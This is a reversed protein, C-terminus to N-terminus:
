STAREEELYVLRAQDRRLAVIAGRILYATPDGGVAKMEAEIVTGPVIGLDMLRRRQLGRCAPSIRSVVGSVGLDLSALTRQEKKFQAPPVRVATLNASLNMTLGISKGEKVVIIKEPGSGAIKITTGPFLGAEVLQAYVSAPEDEVHVIRVVEGQGFAQLPKGKPEPVVGGQSPIPDGHPDYLPHGLRRSLSEADEASLRHEQKEAEEHWRLEEVATEDALYREWLRHVRVVSLAYNRGSETLSLQMGNYAILKRGVLEDLLNATRNRDLGLAGALSDLTCPVGSYECHHIHKLADERLIRPEDRHSGRWRALFDSRPVLVMVAILALILVIIEWSVNM